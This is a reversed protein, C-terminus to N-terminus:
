KGRIRCLCPRVCGHESEICDGSVYTSCIPLIYGSVYRYALYICVYSSCIDDIGTFLVPLFSRQLRNTLTQWKLLDLVPDRRPFVQLKTCKMALLKLDEDTVDMRRLHLCQLKPYARVIEEIWPGAHGGWDEVLLGFEYARPKGKIKIKELNKFRRSVDSPAISYCNSIYVSKRTLGDMRLWMKCVQSAAGRDDPNDLQNFISEMIQEPLQNILCGTILGDEKGKCNRMRTCREEQSEQGLTVMVSDRQLHHAQPQERHPLGAPLSSLLGGNGKLMGNLHPPLSLDQLFMQNLEPDLGGSFGMGNSPNMRGLLHFQALAHPTLQGNGTNVGLESPMMGFPDSGGFHANMGSQQNSVWSLRKLYLRYKQM